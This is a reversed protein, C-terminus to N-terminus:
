KSSAPVASRKRMAFLGYLVAVLLVAGAVGVIMGTNGGGESAVVRGTTLNLPAGEVLTGSYSKDLDTVPEAGPLTRVKIDLTVPGPKAKPLALEYKGPTTPTMAVFAAQGGGKMQLDINVLPGGGDFDAVSITAIYGGKEVPTVDLTEVLVVARGGSHASASGASLGLGAMIAVLVALAAALGRRVGGRGVVNLSNTM